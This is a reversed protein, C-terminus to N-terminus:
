ILLIEMYESVCQGQSSGDRITILLTLGVERAKNSGNRVWNLAQRAVSARRLCLPREEQHYLCRFQSKSVIEM